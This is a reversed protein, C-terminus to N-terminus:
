AQSLARYSAMRATSGRSNYLSPPESGTLIRMQNATAVQQRVIGQGVQANVAQCQALLESLADGRALLADGLHSQGALAQLGDRDASLGMQLLLHSRRRGNQELLVILSQKQALIAELLEMDRGQLALSEDRLLDLLQRAYPLDEEILQLLTQDHM